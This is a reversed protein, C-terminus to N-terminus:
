FQYGVKSNKPLFYVWPFPVDGLVEVYCTGGDGGVM